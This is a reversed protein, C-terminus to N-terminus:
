GPNNMFDSFAQHISPRVIKLSKCLKKSQIRYDILKSLTISIELLNM